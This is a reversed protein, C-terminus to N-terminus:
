LAEPFVILNAEDRDKALKVLRELKALTLDLDYAATCAQVVSARLIRSPSITQTSM